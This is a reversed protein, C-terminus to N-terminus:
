DNSLAMLFRHIEIMAFTDLKCYELLNAALQDAEEGNANIMRQWADMASTGDQVDLDDYGLHPCVVPLVKKISTSGGFKADVYSMKFVDELDVMRDNLQKLFDASDPFWKAMERNQTKEFSAHWSVVSGDEGFDQQMQAVLNGPLQLERQLFEKHNLTGDEDLTHLSYQVPFHKHPSSGDVLPIASAFTEFDFFHLPFQFTNLIERITARDIQPEGTQAARLVVSQLESLPFDTKVDQLDFVDKDILERRRNDNIRPLIYISQKPVNPNFYKFTDCHNARSKSICSCGKRDIEEERLLTIAQNIEIETEDYIERVRETVDEIHLLDQPVINGKRIYSGDLHIIKVQEIAQGSREATILQFCADKLHSHINDTKIRTSSKVEYLIAREDKTIEFADARAYLGDETEFAKQFDINGLSNKVLLQRVYEEVEYGERTLKQLFASFLGQPYNDHDHKYVWLSKPCNLYHIFNTKTLQM